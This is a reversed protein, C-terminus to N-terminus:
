HSDLLAAGKVEVRENVTIGAAKPPYRVARVLHRTGQYDGVSTIVVPDSRDDTLSGDGAVTGDANITEGDQGSVTFTGDAFPQANIWVGNPRNTRWNVDKDIYSLGVSLGTEAIMRARLRYDAAASLGTATSASTLFCSGLIVAVALAILVLPM